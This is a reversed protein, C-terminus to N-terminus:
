AKKLAGARIAIPLGLMDKTIKRSEHLSIMPHYMLYVVTVVSLINVFM